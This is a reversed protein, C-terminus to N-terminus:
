AAASKVPQRRARWLCWVGIVGIGKGVTMVLMGAGNLQTMVYLFIATDIPISVLSSTLLRQSFPEGSFTYISWDITEGVLFACTSAIVVQRDAFLYSALCGLIMAYLVNKGIERQSFDRAVYIIGVAMDAASFPQGFFHYIPFYPFLYNILFILLLYSVTGPYKLLINM